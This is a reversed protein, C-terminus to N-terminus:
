AFESDPAVLRLVSAVLATLIVRFDLYHISAPDSRATRTPRRTRIL